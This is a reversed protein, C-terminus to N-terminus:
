PQVETTTTPIPQRSSRRVPAYPAPQLPTLPSRSAAADSFAVLPGAKATDALTSITQRVHQPLGPWADIVRALDPPIPALKSASRSAASVEIESGRAGTDAGVGGRSDELSNSTRDKCRDGLPNM